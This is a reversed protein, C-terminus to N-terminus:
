PRSIVSSMGPQILQSRLGGEASGLIFKDAELDIVAAEEAGKAGARACRVATIRKRDEDLLLQRVCPEPLSSVIDALWPSSASWARHTLSDKIADKVGKIAAQDFRQIRAMSLLLPLSFPLVPESALASPSPSAVAVLVGVGDVVVSDVDFM